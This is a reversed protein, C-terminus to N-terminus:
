VKTKKSLMVVTEVHCTMCFLDVPQVKKIEYSKKCLIKLDRALTAPDCSVYVIKQPLMSLIVELLSEDCGKRPPDLFIVDASVGKENYLLPIIEESSGDIFEANTINNIDANREADKVAERIIEVGIVKKAKKAIFLSITGIGCYADIVTETGNLDAFEIAKGYLVNTQVPNVQFFSLPSIEFKLDGIYDTIYEKGWLFTTKSGMIVNTRDLNHNLVISTMGEVASLEKILENKHPLSHGNIIVCVMIEGTKYGTRTMLHRILGKHITEDYTSINYKLMFSKMIKIIQANVPHQILCDDTNIIKHSRKSYFGAAIEGDSIGFPYQAKNRYNYPMDMGITDFVTIDSFGGIRELSDKVKKTKYKLQVAYNLHMLSCGGCKSFVGCKPETRFPSPTIIKMLKGYGYTKKLKVIRVEIEDNPLANEVFVTFNNIKGIGEGQNGIDTIKMIYHNNKIIEM